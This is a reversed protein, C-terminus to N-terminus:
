YTFLSKIEKYIPKRRVTDYKIRYGRSSFISLKDEGEYYDKLSILNQIEFDFGEGIISRLENEDLNNLRIFNNNNLEIKKKASYQREDKLIKIENALKDIKTELDSLRSNVTSHLKEDLPKKFLFEELSNRQRKNITRKVDEWFFPELNTAIVSINASEMTELVYNFLGSLSRLVRRKKDIKKLSIQNNLDTLISSEIRDYKFILLYFTEKARFYYFSIDYEEFREFVSSYSKEVIEEVEFFYANKM